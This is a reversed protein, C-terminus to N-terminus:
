PVTLYYLASRNYGDVEEFTALAYLTMGSSVQANDLYDQTWVKPNATKSVWYKTGAPHNNPTAAPICRWRNYDTTRQHTITVPDLRILDSLDNAYASLHYACKSIGLPVDGVLIFIYDDKIVEATVTVQSMSGTGYNLLTLVTGIADSSKYVALKPVQHAPDSDCVMKVYLTGSRPVQQWQSWQLNEPRPTWPCPDGLDAVASRSSFVQTGTYGRSPSSM